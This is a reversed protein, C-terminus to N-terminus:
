KRGKRKRLVKVVLYIVGIIVLFPILQVLMNGSPAGKM